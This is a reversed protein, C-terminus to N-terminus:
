TGPGYTTFLSMDLRHTAFFPKQAMLHSIGSVPHHAATCRLASAISDPQGAGNALTSAQAIARAAEPVIQGQAFRAAEHAQCM